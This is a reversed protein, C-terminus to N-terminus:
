VNQFVCILIGGLILRSYLLMNQKLFAAVTLKKDLVALKSTKM